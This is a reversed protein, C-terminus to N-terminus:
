ETPSKGRGKRAIDIPTWSYVGRGGKGKHMRREQIRIKDLIKKTSFGSETEHCGGGEEKRQMIEMSLTHFPPAKALGGKLSKETRKWTPATAVM